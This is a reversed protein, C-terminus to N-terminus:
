EYHIEYSFFVIMGKEMTETLFHKKSCMECKKYYM